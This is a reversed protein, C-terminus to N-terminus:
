GVWHLLLSDFYILSLGFLKTQFFVILPVFFGPREEGGRVKRMRALYKAASRLRSLSFFDPIFICQFFTITVARNNTALTVVIDVYIYIPLHDM